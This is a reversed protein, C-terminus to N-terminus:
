DDTTEPTYPTVASGIDVVEVPLTVDENVAPENDKFHPREGVAISPIGILGSIVFAGVVKVFVRMSSDLRSITESM